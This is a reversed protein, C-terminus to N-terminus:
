LTVEGLFNEGKEKVVEREKIVVMGREERVQDRKKVKEKEIVKRKFISGRSKM